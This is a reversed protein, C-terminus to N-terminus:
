GHRGIYAYTQPVDMRKLTSYRCYGDMLQMDEARVVLPWIVTTYTEIATKLLDSRKALSSAFNYGRRDDVFEMIKPNLRVKSTQITELSWERTSLGQLWSDADPNRDESRADAEWERRINANIFDSIMTPDEIVWYTVGHLWRLPTSM